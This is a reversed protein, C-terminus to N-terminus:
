IYATSKFFDKMNRVNVFSTRSLEIYTHIRVKLCVEYMHM